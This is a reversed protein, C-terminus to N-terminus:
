RDAVGPIHDSIARTAAGDGIWDHFTPISLAVLDGMAM